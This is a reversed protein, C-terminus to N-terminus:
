NFCSCIQTQNHKTHKNLIHFYSIILVVTKPFYYHILIINFITGKIRSILAYEYPFHFQVDRWTCSSTYRVIVNTLHVNNRRVHCSKNFTYVHYVSQFCIYSLCGAHPVSHHALSPVRHLVCLWMHPASQRSQCMAVLASPARRARPVGGADLM